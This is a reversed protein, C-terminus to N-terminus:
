RATDGDASGPPVLVREVFLAQIEVIANENPEYKSGSGENPFHELLGSFLMGAARRDLPYPRPPGFTATIAESMARVVDAAPDLLAPEIPFGETWVRLVGTYRRQARLFEALWERLASPDGRVVHVFDAFMPCMVSAAEGSLTTILELKDSFYRYFTGRALQAEMVIQDINAVDYGNAAFVRASADLLRRVTQAAQTSLGEFPDNRKISDRRPLSARPGIDSIPPRHSAIAAQEARRPGAALVSAPTNPFLFLQIATALSDLLQADTLGPRYVHRIYNFRTFLATALISSASPNPDAFGGARLAAVFRETHFDVFNALKPRLPAKPSNINMWEIFMSAYRDFVWTWEGLWWHLNDYGDATAGLAGLRRTVRNLAGGSEYMLEIFIADKSEFYQYLTARSTEALVAIDDVSTAHFGRETFCRLAADVIQRRTKAGRLGVTPSSSGYSARRTFAQYGM